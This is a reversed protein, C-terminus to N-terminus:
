DGSKQSERMQKLAALQSELMGSMFDRFTQAQRPSIGVSAPDAEIATIWRTEGPEYGRERLRGAFDTLHGSGYFIAVSKPPHDGALARDLDGMVVKNRQAIILDALGADFPGAQMIDDARGLMEVMMLRFMFSSRPSRGVWGLVSGMIKTFGSEGSLMGLLAEAQANADDPNGEHGGPAGAGSDDSRGDGVMEEPTMGLLQAVTTDANVWWPHSYDIADLQFRLGAAQAMERQLQHDESAEGFVLTGSRVIDADVGEGGPEGDAGLSIITYTPAREDASITVSAPRGWADTLALELQRRVYTPVAGLWRERTTPALGDAAASRLAGAADALRARTFAARTKDNADEPVDRWAPAVGEYLVLGHADLLDQLEAYFAGDGVHAVGVLTVPPSGEREFTRAAVQLRAVGGEGEELRMYPDDGARACPAVLALLAILIFSRADRM